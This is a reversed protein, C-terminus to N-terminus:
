VHGSSLCAPGSDSWFEGRFLRQLDQGNVKILIHSVTSQSTPM